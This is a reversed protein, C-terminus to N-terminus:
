IRGSEMCERIYHFKTDIHKSRDHLVTNKCLAMTSKNDVMLKFSQLERGVLEGIFRSLWAGQCAEIAAAVYEAECSSFVVIKQKRSVWTIMWSGIFFAIGSTSKRDDVDGALDSDGYGVLEVSRERSRYHCGFNLIGKIYRLIQKVAAWHKAGPAKMYCSCIGVSYAIDSRSNVLYQPSGIVSRYLTADM